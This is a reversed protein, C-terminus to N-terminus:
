RDVGPVECCGSIPGISAGALALAGANFLNAVALPQGRPHQGLEVVLLETLLLLALLGAVEPEDPMLAALIRALQIAEHCLGPEISV